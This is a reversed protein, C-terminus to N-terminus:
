MLNVNAHELVSVLQSCKLGPHKERLEAILALCQEATTKHLYYEEKHLMSHMQRGYERLLKGIDVLLGERVHDESHVVFFLFLLCSRSAWDSRIYNRVFTMVNLLAMSDKLPSTQRRFASYLTGRWRTCIAALHFRVVRENQDLLRTLLNSLNVAPASDLRDIIYTWAREVASSLRLGNAGYADLERHLAAVTAELLVALSRPVHTRNMTVKSVCNVVDQLATNPFGAICHGIVGVLEDDMFTVDVESLIAADADPSRRVSLEEEYGDLSWFTRRLFKVAGKFLHTKYPCQAYFVPAVMTSVWVVLWSAVLGTVVWGVIPNLDRLFDSLGIFFLILATQLLLPLLAAIELVRWRVLGKHRYHRIRCREQASTAELALYERLWQKVLMGLSATVLSFVLSSFWLTNIRISVRSIATPQSQSLLAPNIASTNLQMAIQTLLLVSIEAPDIQLQKYSEINFATLVASFLGAFVLLTDIDEKCNRITREDYTSLMGALKSWGSSSSGSDNHPQGPHLAHNETTNSGLGKLPELTFDTKFSINDSSVGRTTQPEGSM